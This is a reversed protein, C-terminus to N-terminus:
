VIHNFIDNYDSSKYDSVFHSASKCPILTVIYQIEEGILLDWNYAAVRFTLSRGVPKHQGFFLAFGDAILQSHFEQNYSAM